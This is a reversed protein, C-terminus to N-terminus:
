HDEKIPLLVPCKCPWRVIISFQGHNTGVLGGDISVPMWGLRLYDEARSARAFLVFEDIPPDRTTPSPSTGVDSWGPTKKTWQDARM